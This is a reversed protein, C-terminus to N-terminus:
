LRRSADKLDLSDGDAPERARSSAKPLPRGTASAPDQDPRSGWTDAHIVGSQQSPSQGEALPLHGQRKHSPPQEAPLALGASNEM